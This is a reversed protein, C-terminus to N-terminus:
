SAGKRARLLEAFTEVRTRLAQTSYDRTDYYDCELGLIPISLDRELARKHMLTSFSARCSFSIAQIFGDVGWLDIVERYRYLLGGSSHYVGWRLESEACREEPTEYKSKVMERPTICAFCVVPISLGLGEVMHMLSPDTAHYLPWAVRPAGKEVVGQGEDVKRKVERALTGIVKMGDQLMNRDPIAIMWYFLGLDVSSIPQPDAKMMQWTQQMGYWLMGYKKAAEFLAEETINLGLAENLEHRARKQEKAYYEVRRRTIEPFEEWASDICADVFINPVGYVEHLLEDVKPSQDCFFGSTLTIDPVPIIGKAIAGLRAQNLSCQATGPALGSEEAAELIPNLKGFMQGMVVDIIIEPAHCYVNDSVLVSALGLRAVPPFVTYVIKKGEERLLVLDVFNKLYFGLIKRVAVMELDFYETLRQEAQAVDGKDIGAIEFARDIRPRQTEIEDPEFGCQELLKTYM